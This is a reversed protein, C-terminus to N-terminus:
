SRLHCTNKKNLWVKMRPSDEAQLMLLQYLDGEWSQLDERHGRFPLGQRALFRVCSLLRLLMERHFKADEEYQHNLLSLVTQASNKTALYSVSERHMDSKEHDCFKQLANKWNGFGDEIFASKHHKSYTVLGFKKAGRCTSCFIRFTSMCVSIWPYKVFWSPQIKRDYSKM